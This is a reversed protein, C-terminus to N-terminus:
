FLILQFHLFFSFFYISLFNVSFQDQKMIIRKKHCQWFYIREMEFVWYNDKNQQKM